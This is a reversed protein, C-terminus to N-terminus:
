SCWAPRWAAPTWRAPRARFESIAQQVGAANRRGSAATLMGQSVAAVGEVQEDTQLQILGLLREDQPEILALGAPHPSVSEAVVLAYMGGESHGVVLM